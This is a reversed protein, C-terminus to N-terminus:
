KQFVLGTWEGKSRDELLELGLKEFREILEAKGVTLIGSCIFYTGSKTAGDIREALELLIPTTLNSVTLDYESGYDEEPSSVEINDQLGNKNANEVTAAIALEDVDVARAFSAGKLLAIISLIGSGCGIDLVREGGKVYESLFGACLATTEHTGTGFASGPDMLIVTEGRKAAYEEWSPCIVLGECISFPKFYQKWNDVDKKPDIQEIKLESYVIGMEALGEQISAFLADKESEECEVHAKYLTSEGTAEQLADDLYDWSIGSGELEETLNGGEILLDEIGRMLFLTTLQESVEEESRISIEYWKM